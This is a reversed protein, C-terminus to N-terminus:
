TQGSGQLFHVSLPYRAMQMHTVRRQGGGGVAVLNSQLPAGSGGFAWFFTVNVLRISDRYSLKLKLLSKYSPYLLLPLLFVLQKYNTYTHSAHTVAYLRETFNTKDFKLVFPFYHASRTFNLYVLDFNEPIYICQEFKKNIKKANTCAGVVAM